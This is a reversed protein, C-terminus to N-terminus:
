PSKNMWFIVILDSGVPLTGKTVASSTNKCEPGKVAEPGQAM